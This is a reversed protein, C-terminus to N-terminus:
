ISELNVRDGRTTPYSFLIFELLEHSDNRIQHSAKPPIELSEGPGLIVKENQIFFTATGSLIYFFQRSKEHFHMQESTGAPMREKIISADDRKLLHWGDCNNGWVYHESNDLNVKTM